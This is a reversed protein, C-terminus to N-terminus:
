LEKLPSEHSSNQQVDGMGVSGKDNNMAWDVVDDKHEEQSPDFNFQSYDRNAQMMVSAIEQIDRQPM